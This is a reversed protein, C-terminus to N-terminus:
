GFTDPFHCVKQRCFWDASGVGQRGSGVGDCQKRGQDTFVLLVLYVLQFAFRLVKKLFSTALFTNTTVGLSRLFVCSVLMASMLVRLSWDQKPFTYLYLLSGLSRKQPSMSHFHYRTFPEEPFFHEDLFKLVSAHDAEEVVKFQINNLKGSRNKTKSTRSSVGQVEGGKGGM